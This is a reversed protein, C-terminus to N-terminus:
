DFHFIIRSLWWADNRVAEVLPTAIGSKCLRM